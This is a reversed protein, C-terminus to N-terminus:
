SVLLLSFAYFGGAATRAAATAAASASASEPHAAAFQGDFEIAAFCGGFRLAPFCGGFRLPRIVTFRKFNCGHRATLKLPVGEREGRSFVPFQGIAALRELNM